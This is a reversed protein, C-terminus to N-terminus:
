RCDQRKQRIDPRVECPEDAPNGNCNQTPAVWTLDATGGFAFGFRAAGLIISVWIVLASLALIM